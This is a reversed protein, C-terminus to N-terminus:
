RKWGERSARGKEILLAKERGSGYKRGVDTGSGAEGLEGGGREVPAM